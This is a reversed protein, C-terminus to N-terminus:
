IRTGKRINLYLETTAPAPTVDLEHELAQVCSQYQRLALYSQGQRVYCRMLRRHADERCNDRTLILKCMTASVSYQAQAFHIRSLRDLIDLYAARLRERAHVTWDEYLDDEMFDGQYLGAALEYEVIAASIEGRTELQQGDRAHMEFDHMDVWLTLAPNLCYTNDQYLVPSLPLAHLAQRLGHFVGNLRNRATDPDANPWLLELLVDRTITKDRHTVLYKFLTRAKSGSFNELPTENLLVRFTGFVYILLAPAPPASVKRENEDAQSEPSQKAGASLLNNEHPLIIEAALPLPPVLVTENAVAPSNKATPAFSKVGDEGRAADRSAGLRHRLNLVRNLIQRWPAPAIPDSFHEPPLTPLKVLLPTRAWGNRTILTDLQRKPDDLLWHLQAITEQEQLELNLYNQWLAARKMELGHRSQALDLAHRTLERLFPDAIKKAARVAQEFLLLVEEFQNKSVLLYGLQWCAWAEHVVLQFTQAMELAARVCVQAQAQNNEQQALASEALLCSCVGDRDNQLGYLEKAVVFKRRATKLDGQAAAVQGQIHLLWPYGHLIHNPLRNLWGTLTEWQGFNFLTEAQDAMVEAARPANGTELYLSIAQETAGERLLFDAAHQLQLPALTVQASMAWHLAHQWVRRLRAWDGTLPQLWPLSSVKDHGLVNQSLEPKIYLIQLALVLEELSARDCADLWTRVLRMLLDDGDRAAAIMQQVLKDQLHACAALLGILPIARGELLVIARPLWQPAGTINAHHVIELADPLDIRLRDTPYYHTEKPLADRAVAGTGTLVLGTDPALASFLHRCFLELGPHTLTLLQVNELVITLPAQIAQRLEQALQVFLPAWGAIPGLHLRMLGITAAGIEPGFQQSAAILSLLFTAPDRDEANLRLWLCKRQQAQLRAAINETLLYGPAASFFTVANDTLKDTKGIQLYDQIPCPSAIKAALM